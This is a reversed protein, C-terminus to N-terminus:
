IRTLIEAGDKTVLVTDEFHASLSGDRTLVAWGDEATMVEYSGMTSMPEIALTMGTQLVPGSGALGYNPINPDEHLTRGVGHGVLDRVVGYSHKELVTQVASGIDGIHAGIKTADIGANLSQRTIDLFRQKIADQGVLYSRAADTYLGKYKVGFDLSVIDGDKIPTSTPIGHVVENNISICIVAPFGSFGLFAPEGGLKKAEVAAIEALNKGSIGPKISEGVTKLVQALIKGSERMLKIEADTKIQIV